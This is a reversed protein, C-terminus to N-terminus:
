KPRTELIGLRHEESMQLLFFRDPDPAYCTFTGAVDDGAAYDALKEGTTADVVTYSAGECALSACERYFQMALRNKSIQMGAPMQGAYPPAIVLKRVVEGTSSIVYVTAPATYARYIDPVERTRTQVGSLLMEGSPFIALQSPFFHAPDLRVVSERKGDPGFNVVSMGQEDRVTAIGGKPRIGFVNFGLAGSM